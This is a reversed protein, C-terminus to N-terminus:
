DLALRVRGAHPEQLTDQIRAFSFEDLRDGNEFAKTVIMGCHELRVVIKGDEVGLEAPQIIRPLREHRCKRQPGIGDDVGIETVNVQLESFLSVRTCVFEARSLGCRRNLAFM